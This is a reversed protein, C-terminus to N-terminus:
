TASISSVIIYRVNDWTCMWKWVYCLLAIIVGGYNGCLKYTFWCKNNNNNDGNDDDDNIKPLAIDICVTFNILGFCKENKNKGIKQAKWSPM